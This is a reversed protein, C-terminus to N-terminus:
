NLNPLTGASTTASGTFTQAGTGDITLLGTGGDFASAQTIDGRASVTGTGIAGETLTLTGQAILTTGATVTKLAGATAPAFRLNNFTETGPVDVIAAGGTFTVTGGNPAFTGGGHTFDGSVSLIGATSTFGGGSLTFAGNVTIASSSGVFTGGAQNFGFSGVTTTVSGQTVTGTYATDIQIGGVNVAANITANKSSTANFIATDLSGPAVGTSWNAGESWNNTSGLGM